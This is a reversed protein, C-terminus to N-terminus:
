CYRSAIYISIWHFIVRGNSADYTLKTRFRLIELDTKLGFLYNHFFVSRNEM